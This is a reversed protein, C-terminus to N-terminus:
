DIDLFVSESLEKGIPSFGKLDVDDIPRDVLHQWVGFGQIWDWNPEVFGLLFGKWASAQHVMNAQGMDSEYESPSLFSKTVSRYGLEQFFVPQSNVNLILSIEILAQNLQEAHSYARQSLFISLDDFSLPLTSNQSALARYYDIGIIDFRAWLARLTNQYNKYEESKFEATLYFRWQELEGGVIKFGNALIYQDTYNIGYTVPVLYGLYNLRIKDIFEIWRHPYGFAQQPHRAGLGVTMSNLEAGISYWIPNIKQALLLYPKHFNLYNEFWLDVNKPKINGHWWYNKSDVYPFQGNPGVILLIPRFAVQFGMKQAELCFAELLRIEESKLENSTISQIESSDYGIMRSHFNLILTNFGVRKIKELHRKVRIGQETDDIRYGLPQYTIVHIAKTLGFSFESYLLLIVIISISWKFYLKM